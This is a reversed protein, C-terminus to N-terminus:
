SKQEMRLGGFCGIRLTKGDLHMEIEGYPRITYGSYSHVGRRRFQRDLRWTRKLSPTAEQSARRNEAIQAAIIQKNTRM